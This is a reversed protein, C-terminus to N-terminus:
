EDPVELIRLPGANAGAERVRGDVTAERRDADLRV